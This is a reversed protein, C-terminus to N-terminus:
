TFSRYQLDRVETFFKNTVSALSIATEATRWCFTFPPKPGNRVMTSDQSVGFPFIAGIIFFTKSNEETALLTGNIQFM